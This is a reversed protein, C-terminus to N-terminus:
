RIKEEQQDAKGVIQGKLKPYFVCHAVSMALGVLLFLVMLLPSRWAHIRRGKWGPFTRSDQREAIPRIAPSPQVKPLLHANSRTSGRDDMVERTEISAIKMLKPKEMAATDLLM